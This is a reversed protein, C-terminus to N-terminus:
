SKKGCSIKVADNWHLTQPDTSAPAQSLVVGDRGAPYDPYLGQDVIIAAAQACAMGVVGPVSAMPAAGKVLIKVTDGRRVVTGGVPDTVRVTANADTGEFVLRWGLGLARVKTRAIQFDQGSLDPLAITDGTPPPTVPSASPTDSPTGTPAPTPTGTPTAPDPLPPLTTPQTTASAAAQKNKDAVSIGFLAGGLGLLLVLTAILAVAFPSWGGNPEGHASGTLAFPDPEEYSTM